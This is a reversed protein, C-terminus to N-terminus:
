GKSQILAVANSLVNAVTELTVGGGGGGLAVTRARSLAGLVVSRCQAIASLAQAKSTATRLKSAATRLATRAPEVESGGALRDAKHDLVTALCGYLASGTYSGCMGGGGSGGGGAANAGALSAGLVVIALLAALMCTWPAFARGSGSSITPFKRGIARTSSTM